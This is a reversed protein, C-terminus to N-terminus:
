CLPATPNPGSVAERLLALLEALPPRGAADASLGARIARALRPPVAPDVSGRVAGAAIERQLQSLGEGAFPRQGALAEHLSVCLSFVDSRADVPGGSMQEPAMYGASGLVLGHQTLRGLLAPAAGGSALREQVLAAPLAAIGFDSVCARGSGAVLVNEPKFDRHVLGQAHAAALGAAAQAFLPLLERVAPRRALLQRLTCGDILEMAIFVGRREPLEGYRYITVVNHHSVRAMLRAELHFRQLLGQGAWLAGLAPVKLAVRRGLGAESAAYVLGMGGAGLVAEVRYGAVRSGPALPEPRPGEPPPADAVDRTAVLAAARLLQRCAACGDLHAEIESLRPEAVAGGLLAGITNEGLCRV